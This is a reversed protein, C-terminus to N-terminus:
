QLKDIHRMYDKEQLAINTITSPIDKGIQSLFKAERITVKLEPAFNVTYTNKNNQGHKRRLITEKLQKIVQDTNHKVWRKYIDQEYDQDLQKALKVYQTAVEMFKDPKLKTAKTKFKDIPAKIRGMITRAWAIAGAKEPMNKSIPPNDKHAMFLNRMAALEKKYQELVDEYKNDLIEKIKERTQIGQFTDLLDFAGESSTLQTKFTNQILNIVSTDIQNVSEKFKDFQQVWSNKYQESFVDKSFTELKTVQANVKEQEAVITAASGTVAKLEPSLIAYFQMVIILAQELDDLVNVMHLPTAFIEKSQQQFDWRRVAQKEIEIRTKDFEAKWNSLVKKGLRILNLAENPNKM